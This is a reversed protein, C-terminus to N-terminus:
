DISNMREEYDRVRGLSGDREKSRIKGQSHDSRAFSNHRDTFTLNRNRNTTILDGRSSFYNSQTENSSILSICEQM